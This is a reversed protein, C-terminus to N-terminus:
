FIMEALTELVAYQLPTLEELVGPKSERALEFWGDVLPFEGHAILPSAGDMWWSVPGNTGADTLRRCELEGGDISVRGDKHRHGCIAVLLEPVNRDEKPNGGMGQHRLHSVEITWNIGPKYRYCGCRPFRCGRRTIKRERDRVEQKNDRLRKTRAERKRRRRVKETVRPPKFNTTVGV